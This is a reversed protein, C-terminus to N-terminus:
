RMVMPWHGRLKSDWAAPTAPDFYTRGPFPFGCRACHLSRFWRWEPMADHTDEQLEGYIADAHGYLTCLAEPDGDSVRRVFDATRILDAM